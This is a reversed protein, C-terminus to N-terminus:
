PQVEPRRARNRQQKLWNARAKAHKGQEADQYIVEELRATTLACTSMAGAFMGIYDDDTAALTERRAESDSTKAESESAKTAEGKVYLLNGPRTLPNSVTVEEAEDEYPTITCKRLFDSNGLFIM